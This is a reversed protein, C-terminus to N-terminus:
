GPLVRPILKGGPEAQLENERCVLRGRLFTARVKGQLRMGEYSLCDTNMHLEAAHVVWNQSPDFLVLDADSGTNIFGKRPHLGFLKAPEEAWIQTFRELTLKNTAVGASYILPLRLEVGGMGGPVKSFDDLQAEKQSRTYPCHDTALVSLTGKVLGEWLAQQHIASKISPACILSAARSPDGVYDQSTFLLYHPCTEGSVPRGAQRAEAIAWVGGSTSVHHIHVRTGIQQQYHLLRQIADEECEAPRSEPFYGLSKKGKELLKQTVRDALIGDEAHVTVLAGAARAAELVQRLESDDLRFGEYAMFVKFSPFGAQVLAPIEKVKKAIDGRINLHFGYDVWAERTAEEKKRQLVAALSEDGEPICFDIISTVGGFAAALTGTAITDASIHSGTPWPLHVHVDVGGPLVVLGSADLVQAGDAPLNEGVSLIVDGEILIDGKLSESGRAILGNKILVKDL